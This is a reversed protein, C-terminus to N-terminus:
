EKGAKFENVFLTHEKGFTNYGGFFVFLTIPEGKKVEEHLFPVLNRQFLLVFKKKKVTLTLEHQFLEIFKPDLNIFKGILEASGQSDNSIGKPFDSWKMQIKYKNTFISLGPDKEADVGDTLRVIEEFSSSIYSDFNFRPATNEKKINGSSCTLLFLTCFLISLFNKM